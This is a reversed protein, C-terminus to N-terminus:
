TIFFGLFNTAQMVPLAWIVAPLHAIDPTIPSNVPWGKKKGSMNVLWM